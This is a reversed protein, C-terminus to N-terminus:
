IEVEKLAYLNKMLKLQEQSLKLINELLQFNTAFDNDSDLMNVCQNLALIGFKLSEQNMSLM